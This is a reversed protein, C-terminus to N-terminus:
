KALHYRTIQKPGAGKVKTKTVTHGSAALQKLFNLQISGLAAKVEGATAGKGKAYMAAAKSKLSGVTLGFADVPKAKAQKAPKAPAKAAKAQKAPKAAKAAKGKIPKARAPATEEAAVEVDSMPVESPAAKDAPKRKLFDPIDLNDETPQGDM